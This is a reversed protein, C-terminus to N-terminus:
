NGPIVFVKHKLHKSEVIPVKFCIQYDVQINVEM